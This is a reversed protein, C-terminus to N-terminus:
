LLEFCRDLSDEWHPIDIGWQEKIKEKDLVSYAPRKAPTPFDKTRIPLVECNFKGKTIIARAFDYWSCVGENSYHYVESGDSIKNSNIRNLVVSALDLTYTPTGVQDFVVKLVSRENALRRMSNFFNYGDPGYVWSTRIITANAGSTLIAKEGMLKSKGYIGMPSPEITEKLPLNGSGDFIYDTSFHFLEVNQEACLAALKDVANGNVEYALSQEQEAKDVATYAACNIFVDCDILCNRVGEVNTIDLSNRDYLSIEMEGFSPALRAFAKGLQGNSGSIAIRKM